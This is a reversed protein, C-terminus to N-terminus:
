RMIYLVIREAGPVSNKTQFHPLGMICIAGCIAYRIAYCVASHCRSPVWYCRGYVKQGADSISKYLIISSIKQKYYQTSHM